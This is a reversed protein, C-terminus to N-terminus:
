IWIKLRHHSGSVQLGVYHWEPGLAEHLLVRERLERPDQRTCHVVFPAYANNTMLSRIWSVSAACWYFDDRIEHYYEPPIGLADLGRTMTWGRRSRERSGKSEPARWVVCQVWPHTTVLKLLMLICSTTAWTLVNTVGSWRLDQLLDSVIFLVIFCALVTIVGLFM